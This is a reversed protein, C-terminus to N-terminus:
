IRIYRSAKKAVPVMYRAHLRPPQYVMTFYVMDGISQNNFSFFRNMPTQITYHYILSSWAVRVSLIQWMIEVNKTNKWNKEGIGGFFYNYLSQENDFIVLYRFKFFNLEYTDLHM